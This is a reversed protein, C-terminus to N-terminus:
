SSNQKTLSFQFKRHQWVKGRSQLSDVQKTQSRTKFVDCLNKEPTNFRTIDEEVLKQKSAFTNWKNNGMARDYAHWEFISLYQKNSIVLALGRKVAMLAYIYIYAM